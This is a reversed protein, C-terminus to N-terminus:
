GAECACSLRREAADWGLCFPPQECKDALCDCSEAGSCADPVEYCQVAGRCQEVCAHESSCDTCSTVQLCDVADVCPGYCGDRVAAIQGDPCQPTPADCQVRSHDCSTTLVCRGGICTAELGHVACLHDDDCGARCVARTEGVPAAWCQCCGGGVICDATSECEVSTTGGTGGGGSSGGSGGSAGSGASADSKEESDLGCAAALCMFLSWTLVRM